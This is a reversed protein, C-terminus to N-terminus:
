LFSEPGCMNSVFRAFRLFTSGEHAQMAMFVMTRAISTRNPPNVVSKKGVKARGSM